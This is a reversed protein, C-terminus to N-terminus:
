DRAARKRPAEDDEREISGVEELAPRTAGERYREWIALLSEVLGAEETVFGHDALEGGRGPIAFVAREGDAIWFHIPMMGALEHCDAFRLDAHLARNQRNMMETLFQTRGESVHCNELEEYMRRSRAFGGKRVYEKWRDEPFREELARARGEADLTVIEIRLPQSRRVREAKRNELAKVYASYHGRDAWAGYGPFDCAVVVYERAGSILKEVESMYSPFTGAERTTLHEFVSRLDRTLKRGDQISLVAFTIGLFSLLLAVLEFPGKHVQYWIYSVRLVELAHQQMSM